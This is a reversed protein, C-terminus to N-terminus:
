FVELSDEQETAALFIYFCFCLFSLLTIFHTDKSDGAVGWSASRM